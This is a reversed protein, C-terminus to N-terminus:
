KLDLHNIMFALELNNLNIRTDGSGSRKRDSSRTQIGVLCQYMNGHSGPLFKQAVARWDADSKNAM